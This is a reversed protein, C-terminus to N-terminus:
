SGLLLPRERGQGYTALLAQAEIPDGLVTGTGHGEVVDVDGTELGAGALARRIVRQQALGNPATLGNSAGDQNVASGRVVALVEHGNARADSLRELLLMGVGEAFVTGDA